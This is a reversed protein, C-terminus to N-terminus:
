ERVSHTEVEVGTQKRESYTYCNTIVQRHRRQRARGSCIVYAYIICIHIHTYICVILMYDHIYCESYHKTYLPCEIFTSKIGM